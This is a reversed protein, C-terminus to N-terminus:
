NEEALHLILDLERYVAPMLDVASGKATGAHHVPNANLLEIDPHRWL